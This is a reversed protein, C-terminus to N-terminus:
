GNKYIKPTASIKINSSQIQNETKQQSVEEKKVEKKLFEGRKIRDFVIAKAELYSLNKNTMLENISANVDEESIATVAPAENSYVNQKVRTVEAESLPEAHQVNREKEVDDEPNSNSYVKIQEGPTVKIENVIEGKDNSLPENAENERSIIGRDGM